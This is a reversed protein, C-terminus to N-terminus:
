VGAEFFSSVSTPAPSTTITETIAVPRDPQVVINARKIKESQGDFPITTSCHGPCGDVESAYQFMAVMPIEHEKCIAIIQAMLPSIQNDYVDENDKIM